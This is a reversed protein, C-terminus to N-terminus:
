APGTTASPPRPRARVFQQIVPCHFCCAQERSAGDLHHHCNATSTLWCFRGGMKRGSFCADRVAPTCHCVEWCPKFDGPYGRQLALLTLMQKCVSRPPKRWGQEYSEVAKKSVGLFYAAEAQTWALAERLAKVVEGGGDDLISSRSRGM